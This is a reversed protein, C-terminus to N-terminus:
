ELTFNINVASSIYSSFRLSFDFQFIQAYFPPIYSQPRHGTAPHQVYPSSYESEM